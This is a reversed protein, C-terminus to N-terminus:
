GDPPRFFRVFALDLRAAIAITCAWVVVATASGILVLRLDIPVRLGMPEHVFPHGFYIAAFLVGFTAVLRRPRRELRACLPEIDLEWAGVLVVVITVAFCASILFGGGIRLPGGDLRLNVILELALAVISAAVVATVVKAAYLGTRGRRYAARFGRTVVDPRGFRALAERLADESYGSEEFHSEFERRLEESARGDPLNSERVLREILARVAQREDPM